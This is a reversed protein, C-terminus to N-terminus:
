PKEPKEEPRLIGLRKVEPNEWKGTVQYQLRFAKNLPNKLLNQAIYAAAGIAPNVAIAVGVATVGGMEPQVTVRLDQTERKMDVSGRMFVEGSPGKIVLDGDTEMIGQALNMRATISDYAFGEGFIDRFDLALRRTVSQLSLLGLLKGAGPEVRSFQGNAAELRLVGGLTATDLTTPAGRWDVRGTLRATGGRLIGPYGLREMLGGSNGTTLTFDLTTDDQGADWIGSGTLRGDPNEIQIRRLNWRRGTNDAELELQGFARAGISFDDVRIDMGPLNELPPAPSAPALAERSALYLRKFRATIRGPNGGQEATADQPAADWVLEGIANEAAIDVRWRTASDTDQNDPRGPVFELKANEFDRGFLALTGADIRIRHLPFNGEAPAPIAQGALPTSSEPADKATEKLFARWADLDLRQQRVFVDVGRAPMDAVDQGIGFVGREMVWEDKQRRQELKGELRNGLRIGLAERLMGGRNELTSKELRLPLREGASKGFPPPFNASFGALDSTLVFDASKRVRIEAQWGAAGALHELFPFAFQARLAEATLTGNARILVAGEETHADLRTAEGLFQGSLGIISLTKGTFDIQGDVSSAPPFGPIFHLRNNELHYRGEVQTNELHGLPIDLSLELRGNGEARMDETFHNINEAVPSQAIFKLFEASPGSAQGRVLLTHEKVAFDPIEVRTGGVEANLIRGKHAEIRMGIGFELDAAIEEIEPWDDGYRLTVDRAKVAILFKGTRPDRFPFDALHGRLTLSAEGTGTRLSQRLWASVNPHVGLPIYRWVGLADARSLKGSLDIRGPGAAESRYSGSLAGDAYLSEFRLAEVDVELLDPAEKPPKWTIRGELRSFSTEPEAFVAPLFLAADTSALTLTGGRESADIVGSAGSIGPIAGHAEFALRDFRTTLTYKKWAGDLREGRARVAHLSGKPRYRELDARMQADLPLHAALRSLAALDLQNASLSGRGTRELAGPPGRWEASLDTPAIKTGDPTELSFGETVLRMQGPARSFRVRGTLRELELEPLTEALRLRVDKLVLDATSNWGTQDYGFWLRLGGEGRRVPIPYDIWAQWVALDAHDLRLYSKGRWRVAPNGRGGLTGSWDGRVDLRSAHRAPPLASLRFLHRRGRNQLEFQVDELILPPAQRSEDEWSLTADRIRISAQALLWDLGADGKTGDSSALAIGAVFIDGAPNRRMRLAPRELTLVAFRPGGRWITYLSHWSLTGEVKGLTLAPVGNRDFLRLDELTLTPNFRQWRGSLKGIQVPLGLAESAAAEIEAKYRHIEPLVAYRLVLVLAVFALYLAFLGWGLM